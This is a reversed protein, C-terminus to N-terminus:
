AVDTLDIRVAGGRRGVIFTFGKCDLRKKTIVCFIHGHAGRFGHGAVKQSGGSRYLRNDACQSYLVTKYRRGDIMLNGIGFTIKIDYRIDSARLANPMGHGIGKSEAAVIGRQNYGPIRLLGAVCYGQRWCANGGCVSLM